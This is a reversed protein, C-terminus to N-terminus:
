IGLCGKGGTNHIKEMCRIRKDFNKGYLKYNDGSKMKSHRIKIYKPIFRQSEKSNLIQITKRGVIGDRKLGFMKQITKIAIGRGFHVDFDLIQIAWKKKIMNLKNKMYVSKFFVLSAVERQQASSLGKINAHYSPFYKLNLGFCTREKSGNAHPLIVCCNKLSGCEHEMVLPFYNRLFYAYQKTNQYTYKYLPLFYSMDLKHKVSVKTHELVQVRVDRKKFVMFSLILIMCFMTRCAEPKTMDKFTYLFKSFEKIGKWLVKFFSKLHKKLFKTKM